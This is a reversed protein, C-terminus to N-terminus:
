VVRRRTRDRSEHLGDLLLVEDADDCGGLPRRDLRRFPDMYRPCLPAGSTDSKVWASRSRLALSDRSHISGATGLLDDPVGIRSVGRRRGVQLERPVVIRGVVHM